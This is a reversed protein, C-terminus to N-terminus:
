KTGEDSSSIVPMNGGGGVPRFVHGEKLMRRRIKGLTSILERQLEDVSKVSDRVYAKNFFYTRSLTTKIDAQLRPLNDYTERDTGNWPILMGFNKLPLADYAQLHNRYTELQVSWPDIVFVVIANTDNARSLCQFADEGIPLSAYLLDEIAIVDL